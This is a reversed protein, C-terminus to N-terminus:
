LAAKLLAAIRKRSARTVKGRAGRSAVYEVEAAADAVPITVTVSTKTLYKTKVRQPYKESDFKVLAWEQPTGNRRATSPVTALALINGEGSTQGIVREGNTFKSM